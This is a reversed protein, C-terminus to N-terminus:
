NSQQPAPVPVTSMEIDASLVDATNRGSGAAFPMGWKRLMAKALNGDPTSARPSVSWFKLTMAGVTAGVVTDFAAGFMPWDMVSVSPPLRRKAPFECTNMPPVSAPMIERDASLEVAVIM